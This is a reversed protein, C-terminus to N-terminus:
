IPNFDEVAGADEADAVVSPVGKTAAVDNASSFDNASFTDVYTAVVEVDAGADDATTVTRSDLSCAMVKAAAVNNVYGSEVPTSAGKSDPAGAEKTDSVTAGEVSSALGKISGSDGPTAAGESDPDGAEKADAVVSGEVSSEVGKVASAYVPTAEGKATPAGAQSRLAKWLFKWAKSLVLTAPLLREKPLLIVMM